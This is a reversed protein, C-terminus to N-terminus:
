IQEAIRVSCINAHDVKRTVVYRLHVGIPSAIGVVIVYHLSKWWDHMM